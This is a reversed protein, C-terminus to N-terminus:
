QIPADTRLEKYFIAWVLYRLADTAASLRDSAKGSVKAIGGDPRAEQTDLANILPRVRSAIIIRDQRFLRHCLNLSDIVRPNM